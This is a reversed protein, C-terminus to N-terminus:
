PVGVTMCHVGGGALVLERCDVSVMRKEHGFAASLQALAREDAEADGFAPVLVCDEVILFNIYSACLKEGALRQKAQITADVPLAEMDSRSMVPPASIRHVVLQRGDADTCRHLVQAAAVSCVHQEGADAWLLAVHGPRTFCAINDVHGDTDIDYAAGFPLWIIKRAGLHRQLSQEIDAISLHPNRNRHLLCQKTTLLTGRGDVSVSGGELIMDVTVAAFNYMNCLRQKLTRDNSFDTYCGGNSAGWANFQYCIACIHADSLTAFIPATDRLWCDDVLLKLVSVRPKYQQAIASQLLEDATAAAHPHSLIVVHLNTTNHLITTVIQSITRRAPYANDRWTDQRHPWGIFLKNHKFWDPLALPWTHAPIANCNATISQSM